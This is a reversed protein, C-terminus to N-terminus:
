RNGDAADRLLVREALRFDAPKDVDVGIGPDASCVVAGAPLGLLRQGLREADAVSARGLALRLVFGVGLLRALQLPKKRAEYVRELWALAPAVAAPALYFCNGGTFWGDRLHVYTRRAGPFAAECADRPVIPYGFALGAHRCAAVFRGLADGTILPADGAALLIEDDPLLRAGRRFNDVISGGAPVVDADLEAGEPAVAVVREIGPLQRLAAVVWAAVPRGALPQLCEEKGALVLGNV